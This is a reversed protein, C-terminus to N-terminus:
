HQFLFENSNLLAWCFDELKEDTSRDSVANIYRVATGSEASTPTRCFAALYCEVVIEDIPRKEKLLQHIRSGPNTLKGHVFSGNAIQLAQSLNLDDSRECQCVSTREPQGFVTLFAKGFDPSPLQTARTGAPLGSFQEPVQTVDCIADLLQEATLLRRTYRSFFRRDRENQPNAESRRQYTQSNLIVRLVHRRDFGHKVFDDALADLLEANSPPNSARFDDAPDVIGKGMVSRWLRNVEVKAFLENNPSTLWEALVVRRDADAAIDVDGVGPLWPKMTQGTRPQTVQGSDAVSVFIEDKRLTADRQIRNFFAALGYYNDQTWKEHPHNHCKACELRAGLFIQATSETCDNTSSASRFYNVPPNEFSSGTATLFERAFRDYPMNQEFARILWRYFKFVGPSSMSAKRIRLTDGWQLTQFKAHEPSNLLEDILRSRKGKSSDALFSQTVDVAPLLGTVDLYVRRLFEGDSTRDSPVYELQKLRTHVLQDVFNSDSLEPWEFGPTKSVVLLFSTEMQDLYRATIATQGRATDDTREVLGDASVTAVAADSTTFVALDTVDRVSGDSFEAIAVFQQRSTERTLQRGSPPNLKLQVCRPATASDTHRGEAIWNRLVTHAISDTVLRRGGAHPEDMLPKRLLLSTDPNLVNVRRAFFEGRLTLEDLELDFGRLSLRFGGKGQPSGHCAGASCGQRSLIPIVDNRLSVPMPEHGDVAVRIVASQGAVSVRVDTTGAAVAVLQGNSIAVVGPDLPEFQAVRTADISRGAKQVVSVLVRFRQGISRLEVRQPYVELREFAAPIQNEEALAPTASVLLATCLCCVSLRGNKM